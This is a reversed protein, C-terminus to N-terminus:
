SELLVLSAAPHMMNERVMHMQTNDGYDSNSLTHKKGM